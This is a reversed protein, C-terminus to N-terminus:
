QKIKICEEYRLENGPYILLRVYHLKSKFDEQTEVYTCPTKGDVWAGCNVYISRCPFKIPLKVSPWMPYAKLCDWIELDPIPLEEKLNGLIKDFDNILSDRIQIDLLPIDYSKWMEAKHTHGFIVINQDSDGDAFYVKIAALLLQGIDGVVAQRWTINAPKQWKEILPNYLAGIDQINTVPFEDIENMNIIDTESLDADKAMAVFLDRVTEAKHFIHEFVFEKLINLYNEKRGKCTRNAELRSMFYGIPLFSPIAPLTNPANFLAYRHGHEGVIAGNRYVGNPDAIYRIHKFTTEMFHQIDIQNETSLFNDHNGPIYTLKHKDALETLATIVPENDQNKCIAQFSTLPYEYTPIVWTDFLDGLIVVEEVEPSELQKNLFNALNDINVLCRGYPNPEAFSRVDGLHIDSIFIKKLEDAMIIREKWHQRIAVNKILYKIKNKNDILM